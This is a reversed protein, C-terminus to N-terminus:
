LAYDLGAGVFFVDRFGGEINLTLKDILKIRAGLLVNVIPVVPPVDDEAMRSGMQPCHNPDDLDDVTTGAPCSTDTTYIEGLVLGVGIGAGYRLMVRDGALRAHWIFSVDFGLVAFNDFTVYDPCQGNVVCNQDPVDGSELYLGSEPGISDYELGFVIDFDGKRRVVEGGIGFSMMSTSHDLFLNLVAEPMFVMRARAGVALESKKPAQAEQARAVEPALVMVFAVPIVYKALRTSM